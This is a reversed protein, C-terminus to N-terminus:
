ATSHASQFAGRLLGETFELKLSYLNQPDRAQYLHNKENSHSNDSRGSVNVRGRLVEVAWPSLNVVRDCVNV